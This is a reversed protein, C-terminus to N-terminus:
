EDKPSITADILKGVGDTLRNVDTKDEAGYRLNMVADFLAKLATKPDSLGFVGRVQDALDRLEGVWPRSEVGITDPARYASVARSASATLTVSLEALQDMHDGLQLAQDIAGQLDGNYFRAALADVRELMAGIARREEENLNGEVTFDLSSARSQTYAAQLGAREEQASVNHQISMRIRDGEATVIELEASEAYRAHSEMSRPASGFKDAGSLEASLAQMGEQLLTYTRDTNEEVAGVLAGLGRLIDRAESFGREIGARAQELLQGAKDPDAGARQAVGARVFGLIREAVKEPTYETAQLAGDADRYQPPVHENLIASLRAYLVTHSADLAASPAWTDTAHSATQASPQAMSKNALKPEVPRVTDNLQQYGGGRVIRSDM